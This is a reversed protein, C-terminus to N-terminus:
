TQKYIFTGYRLKIIKLAGRNLEVHATKRLDFLEESQWFIHFVNEVRKMEGVELLGIPFRKAGPEMRSGWALGVGPVSRGSPNCWVKRGLMRIGPESRGSGLTGLLGGLGGGRSAEVLADAAVKTSLLVFANCGRESKTQMAVKLVRQQAGDGISRADLWNTVAVAVSAGGTAPPLGKVIVEASEASARLARVVDGSEDVARAARARACAAGHAAASAALIAGTDAQNRAALRVFNRRSQGKKKRGRKGMTTSLSAPAPGHLHRSQNVIPLSTPPAFQAAAPPQKPPHPSLKLVIKLDFDPLAATHRRRSLSKRWERRHPFKLERM